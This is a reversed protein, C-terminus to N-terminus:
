GKIQGRDVRIPGILLHRRDRTTYLKVRKGFAHSYTKGSRRYILVEPTGLAEVEIRDSPGMTTTRRRRRTTKKRATARRRTVLRKRKSAVFRGKADRRPPM